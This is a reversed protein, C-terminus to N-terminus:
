VWVKRTRRLKERGTMWGTLIEATGGRGGDCEGSVWASLFMSPASSGSEMSSESGCVHSTKGSWVVFASTSGSGSFDELSLSTVISVRSVGVLVLSGNVIVM